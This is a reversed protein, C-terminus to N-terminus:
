TSVCTDEDESLDLDDLDPVGFGAGCAACCPQGRPAGESAARMIRTFEPMRDPPGGIRMIRTGDPRYMAVALMREGDDTETEDFDTLALWM